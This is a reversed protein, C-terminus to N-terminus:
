YTCQRGRRAGVLPRAGPCRVHAARVLPVAHIAVETNSREGVKLDGLRLRLVELRRLGGLVMAEVMARDRWRRCAAVLEDVEAPELIEPLTRPTRVM